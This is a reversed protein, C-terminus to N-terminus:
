ESGVPHVNFTHSGFDECATSRNSHKWCWAEQLKIYGFGYLIIVHVENTIITHKKRVHCPYMFNRVPPKLVNESTSKWINLKLTTRM